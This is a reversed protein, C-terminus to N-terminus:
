FERILRFGIEPFILDKTIRTGIGGQILWRKSVEYHLQPMVLRSVHGDIVQGM